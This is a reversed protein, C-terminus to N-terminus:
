CVEYTQKEIQPEMTTMEVLLARDCHATTHILISICKTHVKYGLIVVMKENLREQM